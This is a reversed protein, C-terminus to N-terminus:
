DGACAVAQAHPRSPDLPFPVRDAAAAAVRDAIVTVLLPDYALHESLLLTTDPHRVQAAAIAAPLDEAVHGGLQLFYPVVVLCRFGQQALADIAPGILPQNLGLYAVKVSAYRRFAQIRAAVVAVMRNATPDPSGHAVLVLATPSSDGLHSTEAETARQLALEALAAHDGFPQALAFRVKPYAARGAELQRPADVRVFKGPVLFYPQVIVEDVGQAVVRALTTHFNPQSYNLFGAAVIPAVRAAQARAALRIMAAGSGPRLSGHGLLIVARM